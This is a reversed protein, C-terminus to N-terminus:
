VQKGRVAYQRVESSAMDSRPSMLEVPIECPKGASSHPCVYVPEEDKERQIRQAEKEEEEIQLRIREPATVNGMIEAFRSKARLRSPICQFIRIEASHEKLSKM